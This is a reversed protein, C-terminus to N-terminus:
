VLRTMPHVIYEVKRFPKYVKLRFKAFMGQRAIYYRFLMTMVEAIVFGILVIKKETIVLITM